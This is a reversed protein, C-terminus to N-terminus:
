FEVVGSKRDEYSRIKGAARSKARHMNERQTRCQDEVIGPPINM